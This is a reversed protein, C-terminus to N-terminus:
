RAVVIKGADRRGNSEFAFMYVGNPLERGSADRGTFTGSYEGPMTNRTEMVKQILRGQADHVRLSVPGAESVSFELKAFGLAGGMRTVNVKYPERSAVSSTAEFGRADKGKTVRPSNAVPVINAGFM